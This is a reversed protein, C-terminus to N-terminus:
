PTIETAKPKKTTVHYIFAGEWMQKACRIAEECDPASIELEASLNEPAPKLLKVIWTRMKM